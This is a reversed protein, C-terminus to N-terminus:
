RFPGGGRVQLPSRWLLHASSLRKPNVFETVIRELARGYSWGDEYSAALIESARDLVKPDLAVLDPERGLDRFGKELARLAVIFKGSQGHRHRDPLGRHGGEGRERVACALLDCGAPSPGRGGDRPDHLALTWGTPHAGRAKVFSRLDWSGADWAVPDPCHFFRRTKAHAVFGALNERATAEPRPVFPIPATM